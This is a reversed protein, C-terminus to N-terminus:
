IALFTSLITIMLKSGAKASVFLLAFFAFLETVGAPTSGVFVKVPDEVGSPKVKVRVAAPQGCEIVRKVM